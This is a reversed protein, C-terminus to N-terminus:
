FTPCPQADFDERSTGDCDSFGWGSLFVYGFLACGSEGFVGLVDAGTRTACVVFPDGCLNTVQAMINVSSVPCVNPVCDAATSCPSPYQAISECAGTNSYTWCSSCGVFGGTELESFNCYKYKTGSFFTVASYLGEAYRSAFMDYYGKGTGAVAIVDEACQSVKGQVATVGNLWSPGPAPPTPCNVGCTGATVCQAFNIGSQICPAPNDIIKCDETQGFVAPVFLATLIASM